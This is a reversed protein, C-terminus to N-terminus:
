MSLLREAVLSPSTLAADDAPLQLRLVSWRWQALSPPRCVCAAYQAGHMWRCCRCYWDDAVGNWDIDSEFQVLSSYIRQLMPRDLSRLPGEVCKRLYTNWRERCQVLDRGQLWWYTNLM